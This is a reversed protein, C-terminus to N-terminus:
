CIGQGQYQNSTMMVLIDQFDMGKDIQLLRTQPLFQLYPFVNLVCNNSVYIYTELGVSAVELSTYIRRGDRLLYSMGAPSPVQYRGSKQGYHSIGQSIPVRSPADSKLPM